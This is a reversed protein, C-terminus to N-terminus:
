NVVKVPAEHALNVNGSTIVTMGSTLGDTVTYENLNELGTTVYNWMAKNGDLTFM